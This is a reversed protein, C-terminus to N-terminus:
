CNKYFNFYNSLKYHLDRVCLKILINTGINEFFIIYPQDSL